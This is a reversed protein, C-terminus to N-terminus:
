RYQPQGYAQQGYMPQQIMSQQGYAQPGAKPKPKSKKIFAFYVFICMMVFGIVAKGKKPIKKLMPLEVIKTLAKAAKAAPKKNAKDIAAYDAETIAYNNKKLYGYYYTDFDDEEKKVAWDGNDDFEPFPPAFSSPFTRPGGYLDPVDKGKFTITKTPDDPFKPDPFKYDGNDYVEKNAKLYEDSVEKLDKNWMTNGWGVPDWLDLGALLIDFGLLLWGVPGMAAKIATGAAQKAAMKVAIKTAIKKAIKASIKTAIKGSVKGGVKKGIRKSFAKKVGKELLEGGVSGVVMEGVDAATLNKQLAASALCNKKEASDLIQKCGAASMATGLGLNVALDGGAAKAISAM